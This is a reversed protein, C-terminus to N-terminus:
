LTLTFNQTSQNKIAFNNNPGIHRIEFRRVLIIISSNPGETKNKSKINFFFVNFSHWESFWYYQGFPSCQYEASVYLFCWRFNKYPWKFMFSCGSIKMQIQIILFCPEKWIPPVRLLVPTYFISNCFYIWKRDRLHMLILSQLFVFLM